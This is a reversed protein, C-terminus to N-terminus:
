FHVENKVVSAVEHKVVNEMKINQVPQTLCIDSAALQVSHKQRTYEYRARYAEQSIRYQDLLGLIDEAPRKTFSGKQNRHRSTFVGAGRTQMERMIRTVAEAKWRGNVNMVIERPSVERGKYLLIRRIIDEDHLTRRWRSSTKAIGSDLPVQTHHFPAVALFGAPGKLRHVMMQLYCFLSEDSLLWGTEEKSCELQCAM